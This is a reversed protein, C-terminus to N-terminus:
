RMAERYRKIVGPLRQQWRAGVPAIDQRKPLTAQRQLKFMMVLSNRGLVGREYLALTRRSARLVKGGRKEAILALFRRGTKTVVVQLKQGFFQEIDAPTMRAGNGKRPVEPLPVALYDGGGSPRVVAGTDHARMAAAARNGSAYVLLAARLSSGTRPFVRGQWARSLKGLGAASTTRELDLELGRVVDRMAAMVARGQKQPEAAADKAIRDLASFDVKLSFGTSAM